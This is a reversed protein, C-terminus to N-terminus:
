YKRGEDILERASIGVRIKRALIRELALHPDGAPTDLPVIKAVPIGKHTVITTEGHAAAQILASFQTKGEFTGVTKM